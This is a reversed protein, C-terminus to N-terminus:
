YLLWLSLGWPCFILILGCCVGDIDASPWYLSSLSELECYLLISSIVKEFLDLCDQNDEFEVKTWDIGDLEYEQM